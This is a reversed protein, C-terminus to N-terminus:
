TCKGRRQDQFQCKSRHHHHVCIVSRGSPEYDHAAHIKVFALILQDNFQESDVESCSCQDVM